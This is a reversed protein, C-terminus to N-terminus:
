KERYIVKGAFMKVIKHSWEVLWRFSFQPPKKEGEKEEEQNIPLVVVPTSPYNAKVTEVSGDAVVIEDPAQDQHEEVRHLFSEVEVPIEPSKEHEVMQYGGGMDVSSTDPTSSSEIREKSSRSPNEPNLTDIGDQQAMQNHEVRDLVQGLADIKDSTDNPASNTM